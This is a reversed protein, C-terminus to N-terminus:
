RILVGFLVALMAVFIWIWWWGRRTPWLQRVSEEARAVLDVVLGERVQGRVGHRRRDRRLGV